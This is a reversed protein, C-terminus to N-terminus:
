FTEVPLHAHKKEMMKIQKTVQFALYENGDYGTVFVVAAAVAGAATVDVVVVVFRFELHDTHKRLLKKNTLCFLFCNLCGFCKFLSREIMRIAHM